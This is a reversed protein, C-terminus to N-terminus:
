SYKIYINELVEMQRESLKGYREFASELRAAWDLDVASMEDAIENICKLRWRIIEEDTAKKEESM